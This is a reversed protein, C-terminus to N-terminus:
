EGFGKLLEEEPVDAVSRGDGRFTRALAFSRPPQNARSEYQRIADRLVDTLSRGEDAALQKLRAADQEDLSVSTRKV